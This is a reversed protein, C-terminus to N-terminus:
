IAGLGLIAHGVVGGKKITDLLSEQAAAVEIAKGMSGDLPLAGLGSELTGSIVGGSDKIGVVTPLATGSEAFTAVGEFGGNKASFFVSPGAVFLTGEVSESGNRLAKGEFRHGG